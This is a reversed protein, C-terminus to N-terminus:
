FLFMTFWFLFPFWPSYFIVLRKFKFEIRSYCELRGTANQALFKEFSELYKRLFESLFSYVIVGSKNAIFIFLHLHRAPLFLELSSVPNSPALIKGGFYWGRWLVGVVKGSLRWSYIWGDVGRLFPALETWKIWMGKKTVSINKKKKPPFILFGSPTPFESKKFIVCAKMGIWM